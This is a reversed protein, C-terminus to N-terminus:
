VELVVQVDETLTLMIGGCNPASEPPYADGYEIFFRKSMDSVSGSEKGLHAALLTGRSLKDNGRGQLTGTLPVTAVGSSNTKEEGVGQIRIFWNTLPVSTKTLKIIYAAM